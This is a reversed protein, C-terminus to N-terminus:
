TLSNQPSPISQDSGESLFYAVTKAIADGDDPRFWIMERDSRFWTMQRKAYRRTDHKIAQVAAPLDQLGHLYRVIHRYGLSQMPKLTRTYGMELLRRVEEVFGGAMMQDTRQGIRDYLFQRELMLGIKLYDYRRGGFHHQRHQDVISTGSIELVELARMIRVADRPHIRRAAQEDKEKLEAYLCAPGHASLTERYSTRLTEDAEPGAFLGGLLARIYLGAGGVVFVPKRAIHLAEIVPQAHKIFLSANFPEDPDAVDLLHHRVLERQRATPKATGIDMLRYVQMADASIIEGGAAAALQLALKSKGVATPGALVILRPKSACVTM